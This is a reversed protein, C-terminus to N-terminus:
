PQCGRTRRPAFPGTQTRLREEILSLGDPVLGGSLDRVTQAKFDIVCGISIRRAPTEVPMREINEGDSTYIALTEGRVDYVGISGVRHCVDSDASSATPGSTPHTHVVVGFEGPGPLWSSQQRFRHPETALNVLRKYRRARGDAGFILRGGVETGDAATAAHRAIEVVVGQPVVLKALEPFPRRRAARDAAATVATPPEAEADLQPFPALADEVIAALEADVALLRLRQWAFDDLHAATTV